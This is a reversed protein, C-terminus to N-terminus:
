IIHHLKVTLYKMQSFNKMLGAHCMSTKEFDFNMGKRLDPENGEDM